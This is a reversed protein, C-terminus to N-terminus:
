AAAGRKRKVGIDGRLSVEVADGIVRKMTSNTKPTYPADAREELRKPIAGNGRSIPVEPDAVEESLEDEPSSLPSIEGQVTKLFKVLRAHLVPVIGQASLGRDELHQRLQENSGQIWQLRTDDRRM